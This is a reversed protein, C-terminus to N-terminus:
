LSFLVFLVHFEVEVKFSGAKSGHSKVVFRRKLWKEIQASRFAFFLRNRIKNFLINFFGLRAKKFINHRGLLFVPVDLKKFHQHETMTM